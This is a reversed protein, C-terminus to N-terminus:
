NYLEVEFRPDERYPIITLYLTLIKTPDQPSVAKKIAFNVILDMDPDIIEDTRMWLERFLENNMMKKVFQIYWKNKTRNRQQYKFDKLMAVLFNKRQDAREKNVLSQKNLIFHSSFTVEIVSPYHLRIYQRQEDNINYFDFIKDNSHVIRWSFDRISAPYKWNNILHSTEKRIKKIEEELPQYAGILLLHNAEQPKLELIRCIKDILKRDPKEVRGQEIRSLRAADKWGLSFAIEMQSVNKQLRYDKLLGGLSASM